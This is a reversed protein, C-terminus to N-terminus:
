KHSRKSKTAGKIGHRKRGGRATLNAFPMPHMREYLSEITRQSLGKGFADLMVKEREIVDDCYAYHVYLDGLNRLTKIWWGGAHPSRAGLSTDYYEEVRDSLESVIVRDRPGARGIYIVVEDPCWYASLRKDLAQVDSPAGDVTLEPRVELLGQLADSSLPCRVLASDVSDLEDTLAVIYIGTGPVKERPRSIRTGWPVVGTRSVEATTFLASVTSPMTASGRDCKTSFAKIFRRLKM